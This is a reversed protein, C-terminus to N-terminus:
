VRFQMFIRDTPASNLAHQRVTPRVCMVVSITAKRLKEFMGLIEVNYGYLKHIRETHKVSYTPTIERYLMLYNIKTVSVFHM